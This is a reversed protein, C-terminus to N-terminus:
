VIMKRTHTAWRDASIKKQLNQRSREPITEYLKVKILQWSFLEFGNQMVPTLYRHRVALFEDVDHKFQLNARPSTVFSTSSVCADGLTIHLHAYYLLASTQQQATSVDVCCRRTRQCVLSWWASLDTWIPPASCCLIPASLQSTRRSPGAAQQYRYACMHKKVRQKLRM